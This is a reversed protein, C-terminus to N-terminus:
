KTTEVVKSETHEVTVKFLNGFHFLEKLKFEGTISEKNKLVKITTYVVDVQPKSYDTEGTPKKQYEPTSEVKIVEAILTHKM